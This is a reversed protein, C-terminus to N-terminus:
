LLILSLTIVGGIITSFLLCFLPLVYKYAKNTRKVLINVFLRCAPSVLLLVLPAFLKTKDLTTNFLVESNILAVLMGGMMISLSLSFRFSFIFYNILIYALSVGSLAFLTNALNMINYKQFVLGYVICFATVGIASSVDEQFGDNVLLGFLVVGLITIIILPAYDFHTSQIKLIKYWYINVLVLIIVFPFSISKLFPISKIVLSLLSIVLAVICALLILYIMKDHRNVYLSASATNSAIHTIKLMSIMAFLGGLLGGLWRMGKATRFVTLVLMGIFAIIFPYFVGITFEHKIILLAQSQINDLM